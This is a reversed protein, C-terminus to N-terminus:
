QCTVAVVPCCGEVEVGLVACELADLLVGVDAEDLSAAHCHVVDRGVIADAFDCCERGYAIWEEDEEM